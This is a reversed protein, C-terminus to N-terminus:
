SSTTVLLMFIDGIVQVTLLLSMIEEICVSARSVDTFGAAETVILIMRATDLKVTVSCM